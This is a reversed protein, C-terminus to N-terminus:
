VSQMYQQSFSKADMPKAYLYGQGFDFDLKQVFEEDEETEIGEAVTVIGLKKTFDVIQEVIIQRRISDNASTKQLFSRDLKLEDVNLQYLMNLSSYGSGFDDMSIRFGKSHLIEIQRNLDDLHDSAIDELIELTIWSPDVQYKEMVKALEEPYRPDSFLLKSQNVSIPIPRIGQDLWGRIQRCSQEVMYMDLRSCFGNEEFLPIFEGPLRYTGDAKQWRVLAEAGSLSHTKMNFKPQLFLKFEENKLAPYMQSEIRNKQRAQSLLDNTYFAINKRHTRQISQMALLARERNGRVAVGCYLSLDYLEDGHTLSSYSIYSIIENLRGVIVSEDTDLFLLYFLDATDRCFFEGERLHNQIM